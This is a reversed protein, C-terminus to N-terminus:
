EEWLRSNLLEWQCNKLLYNSEIGVGQVAYKYYISATDKKIKIEKFELFAKIGNKKIEYESMMKIPNGFKNLKEIGSYLLNNLLILDKQRLTKQISYYQQLNPLNIASSILSVYKISDSCNIENNIDKQRIKIPECAFLIVFLIIIEIKTNFIKRNIM